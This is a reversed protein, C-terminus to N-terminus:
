ASINLFEPVQSLAQLNIEQWPLGNFDILRSGFYDPSGSPAPTTEAFAEPKRLGALSDVMLACNLDLSANFTVVSAQSSVQESRTPASGNNLFSALDVVGFLSGRLNVVGMFWSRSYPVPQVNSLPFIQGSQTLPFLYRAAGAQVALWSVVIGESRAAQLRTALRAQLERIAARNAM